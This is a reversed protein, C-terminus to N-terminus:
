IFRTYFTITEDKNNSIRKHDFKNKLSKKIFHNFVYSLGNQILTNICILIKLKITKLKQINETNRFCLNYNLFTCIYVFILSFIYTLITKITM